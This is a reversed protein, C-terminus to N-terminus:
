ASGRQEIQVKEEIADRPAGVVTYEAEIVKGGSPPAPDPRPPIEFADGGGGDGHYRTASRPLGAMAARIRQGTAALGDAYPGPPTRRIEADNDRLIDSLIEYASKSNM